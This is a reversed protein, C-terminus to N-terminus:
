VMLCPLQPLPRLWQIQALLIVFGDYEDYKEAITEALQSWLTPNVAASDMPTLSYRISRLALVTQDRTCKGVPLRFRISTFSRDRPEGDNRHYRWHLHTIRFSRTQQVTKCTTTPSKPYWVTSKASLVSSEDESSTVCTRLEYDNIVASAFTILELHYIM